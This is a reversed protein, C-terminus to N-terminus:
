SVLCQVGIVNDFECHVPDLSICCLWVYHKIM